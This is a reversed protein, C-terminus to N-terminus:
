NRELVSLVEVYSTQSFMDYPVISKCAWGMENLAKLDRVFSPVHCSVMIIRTGFNCQSVLRGLGSRPPDLVLTGVEHKGKKSALFKEVSQEVYEVKASLDYRAANERGFNVLRPDIEVATVRAGMRALPITFNGAGAYLDYVPEDRGVAAAKLVGDILKVNVVANVQSFHGAPVRLSFTGVSNLPLELIQRGFGGVEKGAVLLTANKFHSKAADLVMKHQSPNLAYPAKLVAVIGERDDELLLSSIAGAVKRGFEQVQVLAENIRETGIACSTIPVVSRSNQRYFGIRGSSDVHLSIRRRYGYPPSPVLPELKEVVHAPLRAAKLAGAIMTHKADLQAPYEIHQLECSGCTMFYPCRPECREPVAAEVNLFEAKLYREKREIVQASVVEGMVSFPVFATIGLLDSALDRNSQDKAAATSPGDDAFQAVVEGVGAGGVALNRINVHIKQGM